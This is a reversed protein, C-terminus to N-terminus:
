ITLIKTWTLPLLKFWNQIAVMSKEIKTVRSDLIGIHGMIEIRSDKLANEM